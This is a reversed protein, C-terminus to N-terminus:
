GINLVIYIDSALTESIDSASRSGIIWFPTNEKSTGTGKMPQTGFASVMKWPSGM